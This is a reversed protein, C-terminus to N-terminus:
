LKASREYFCKEARVKADEKSVGNIENFVFYNGDDFCSHTFVLEADIKGPRLLMSADLYENHVIFKAMEERLVVRMPRRGESIVIKSAFMVSPENEVRSINTKM